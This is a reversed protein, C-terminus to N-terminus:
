WLSPILAHTWTAEEDATTLALRILEQTPRPAHRKALGFDIEPSM